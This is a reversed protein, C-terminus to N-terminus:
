ARNNKAVSKGSHLMGIVVQMEGAMFQSSGRILSALRHAEDWDQAARSQALQQALERQKKVVQTYCDLRSLLQPRALKSSEISRRAMEVAKELQNISLLIKEVTIQEM